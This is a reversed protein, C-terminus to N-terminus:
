SAQFLNLISMFTKYHTGASGNGAYNRVRWVVDDGNSVPVAFVASMMQRTETSRIDIDESWVTVGGVVCSFTVVSDATPSGRYSTSVGILAISSAGAPLMNSPISVTLATTTTLAFNFESNRTGSFRRGTAGNAIKLTGVALDQIKASTIAANAIKAGAIQADAIMATQIWANIAQLDTMFAGDPTILVSADTKRVIEPAWFRVSTGAATNSADVQFAWRAQYADSPVTIVGTRSSASTNGATLEDVTIATIYTGDRGYFFVRARATYTAGATRAIQFRCTLTESPFVPSIMLGSCSQWGTQGGPNTWRLEGQSRSTTASTNKIIQFGAASWAFRSQLQDDPVLNYGNDQVSLMDASLTGRVIIQDADLLIAAGSADEDDWSYLGFKGNNSRVVYASEAKEATAVATATEQVFADWSDYRASVKTNITAIASNANAASAAAQEVAANVGKDVKRVDLQTVYADGSGGAMRRLLLRVSATGAPAPSSLTGTIEVWTSLDLEAVGRTSTGLENGDIDLWIAQINLTASRPSSGAAAALFRVSLIDGEQAAGQYARGQRISVADAPLKAIFATPATLVATASSSGRAVVSWASSWTTWWSPAVGAAQAGDSFNPNRVLNGDQFSAEVTSVRSALAGQANSLAVQGASLLADAEQFAVSVEEFKGELAGGPGLISLSLANVSSDVYSNAKYAKIEAETAPRLDLLDIRVTAAATTGAPKIGMNLRVGNASVPRQFIVERSFTLNPDSTLGWQSVLRGESNQQGFAHGRTWTSGNRWEVRLYANPLSGSLLVMRVRAVLYELTHDAGIMHGATPSSATIGAVSEGAPLTMLLSSKFPSELDRVGWTRVGSSTWRVLNGGAWQRFTPDAVWGDASLGAVAIGTAESLADLDLEGILDILDQAAQLTEESLGSTTDEVDEVRALIAAIQDSVAGANDEAQDLRNQIAAVIAVYDAVWDSEGILTGDAIAALLINLKQRVSLGSERDQVAPIQLDAM